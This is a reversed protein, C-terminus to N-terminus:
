KLCSTNPTWPPPPLALSFNSLPANWKWHRSHRLWGQWSASGFLFFKSPDVTLIGLLSALMLDYEHSWECKLPLHWHIKRLMKFSFLYLNLLNYIWLNYWRLQQSAARIKWTTQRNHLLTVVIGLPMNNLTNQKNRLLIAVIGLSVHKIICPTRFRSFTTMPFYLDDWIWALSCILVIFVRAPGPKELKSRHSLRM